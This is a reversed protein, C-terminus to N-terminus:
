FYHSCRAGQEEYRAKLGASSWTEFHALNLRLPASFVSSSLLYTITIKMKKDVDVLKMYESKM